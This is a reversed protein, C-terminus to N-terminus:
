IFIDFVVYDRGEYWFQQVHTTVCKTYRSDDVQFVEVIKKDINLTTSREYDLVKNWPIIWIVDFWYDCM